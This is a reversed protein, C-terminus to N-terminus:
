VFVVNCWFFSIALGFVRLELILVGMVNRPVSSSLCFSIKAALLLPSSIDPKILCSSMLSPTRDGKQILYCYVGFLEVAVVEM